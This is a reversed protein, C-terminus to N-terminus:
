DSNRTEYKWFAEDLQANKMCTCQEKGIRDIDFGGLLDANSLQMFLEKTSVNVDYELNILEKELLEYLKKSAERDQDSLRVDFKNSAKYSHHKKDNKHEMEYNYKDILEQYKRGFKVGSFSVKQSDFDIIEETDIEVEPNNIGIISVESLNPPLVFSKEFLFIEHCPAKLLSDLEKQNMVVLDLNDLIRKDDVYQRIKSLKKNNKEIQEVDISGCCEDVKIELAECIKQLVNEDKLDIKRVENYYKEYHRDELWDLLKGNLFYMIAKETDFYTRFEEITRVKYGDKMELPFKIKKGM